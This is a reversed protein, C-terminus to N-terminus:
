AADFFEIKHLFEDMYGHMEAERETLEKIVNASMAHNLADRIKKASRRGIRSESGFLKDLLNRDFDYGAFSLAHPVQTMTIQMREPREGNKRFQHEQLIVKYLIECNAFKTKFNEVMRITEENSVINNLRQLEAKARMRLELQEEATIKPTKAM